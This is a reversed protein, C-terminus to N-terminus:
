QPCRKNNSHVPLHSPVVVTKSHVGPFVQGGFERHLGLAILFPAVYPIVNVVLYYGFRLFWDSSDLTQPSWQAAVNHASIEAFALFLMTELIAVVVSGLALPRLNRRVNPAALIIAWYVPLSFTFAVAQTRGIDFDVSHIKVPEPQQPSAPITFRVPVRLSWDGAPTESILRGSNNGFLDWGIEASVRLLVLLPNSLVFWWSVLLFVLLLSGLILFRKQPSDPPM